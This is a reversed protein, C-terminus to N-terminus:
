KFGIKPWIHIFVFAPNIKKILNLPGVKDM